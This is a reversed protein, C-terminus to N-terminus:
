GRPESSSVCWDRQECFHPSRARGPLLMQKILFKLRINFTRVRRAFCANCMICQHPKTVAHVTGTHRRMDYERSFSLDCGQFPCRYPKTGEHVRLHQQLNFKRTFKRSCLPCM